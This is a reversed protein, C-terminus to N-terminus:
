LSNLEMNQFECLEWDKEKGNGGERGVALRRKEGYCNDIIAEEDELPLFSPLFNPLFPLFGRGPEEEM